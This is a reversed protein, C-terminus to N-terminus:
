LGAKSRVDGSVLGSVTYLSSVDAASVSTTFNSALVEGVPMGVDSVVLVDISLEKWDVSLEAFAVCWGCCGMPSILAGTMLMVAGDSSCGALLTGSVARPLDLPRDRALLPADLLLDKGIAPALPLIFEVLALPFLLDSDTLM